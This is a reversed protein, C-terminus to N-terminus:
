GPTGGRGGGVEDLVQGGAGGGHAWAARTLALTRLSVIVQARRRAKEMRWKAEIANQSTSGTNAKWWEADKNLAQFCNLPNHRLSLCVFPM